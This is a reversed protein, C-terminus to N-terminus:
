AVIHDFIVNKIGLIFLEEM